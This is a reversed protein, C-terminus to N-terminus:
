EPKVKEFLLQELEAIAVQYVTIQLNAQIKFDELAKKLEEIRVKIKAELEM